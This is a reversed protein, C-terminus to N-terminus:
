DKALRKVKFPTVVVAEIDNCHFRISDMTLTHRALLRQMQAISYYHFLDRVSGM